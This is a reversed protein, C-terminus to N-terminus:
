KITDRKRYVMHIDSQLSTICNYLKSDQVQDITVAGKVTAVDCFM